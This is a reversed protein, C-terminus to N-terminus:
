KKIFKESKYDCNSKFVEILCEPIDKAFWKKDDDGISGTITLTIGEEIEDILTFSDKKDDLNVKIWGNYIYYLGNYAFQSALHRYDHLENCKNLVEDYYFFIREIYHNEHNCCSCGTTAEIMYFKVLIDEGSKKFTPSLLCEINYESDLLSKLAIAEKEEMVLFAQCKGNDIAEFGSIGFGMDFLTQGIANIRLIDDADLIITISAFPMENEIKKAM